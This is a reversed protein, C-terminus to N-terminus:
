IMDIHYTRFQRPDFKSASKCHVADARARSGPEPRTQALRRVLIELAKGREQAEGLLQLAAEHDVADGFRAKRYECVGICPQPAEIRGCGICRWAEVILPAASAIENKASVHRMRIDEIQATPLIDALTTTRAPRRWPVVPRAGPSIPLPGFDGPQESVSPSAARSFSTRPEVPGTRSTAPGAERCRRRERRAPHQLRPGIARDGEKARADSVQRRRVNAKDHRVPARRHM